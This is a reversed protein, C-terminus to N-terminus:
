AVVLTELVKPSEAKVLVSVFTPLPVTVYPEEFVDTAVTLLEPFTVIKCAPVTVIVAVTASLEVYVYAVFVAEYVKVIALAAAVAGTKALTSCSCSPVAYGIVTVLLPEPPVKCNAYLVVLEELPYLLQDVVTGVLVSIPVVHTFALILGSESWVAAVLETLVIVIDLNFKALDNINEEDKM